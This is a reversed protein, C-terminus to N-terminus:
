THEESRGEGPADIATEAHSGWEQRECDRPDKDPRMHLFTAHRLVGDPTWERCKVECVYRPEVWTTTKTDPIGASALPAVGPATVPGSCAPDRRVIPALLAM